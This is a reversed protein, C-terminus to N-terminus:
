GRGGEGVEEPAELISCPEGVLISPKSHDNTLM